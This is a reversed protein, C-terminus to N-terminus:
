TILTLVYEIKREETFRDWLKNFEAPTFTAPFDDVHWIDDWVAMRTRFGDFAKSLSQLAVEAKKLSETMDPIRTGYLLEHFRKAMEESHLKRLEEDIWASLDFDDSM